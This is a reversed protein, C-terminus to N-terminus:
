KPTIAHRTPLFPPHAPLVGALYPLCLNGLPQTAQAIGQKPARERNLPTPMTIYANCTITTKDLPTQLHWHGLLHLTVKNTTHTGAQEEKTSILLCCTLARDGDCVPAPLQRRRSLTRSTRPHEAMLHREHHQTGAGELIVTSDPAGELSEPDRCGSPRCGIFYFLVVGLPLGAERRWRGRKRGRM